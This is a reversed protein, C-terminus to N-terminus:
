ERTFVVNVSYDDPPTAGDAVITVDGQWEYTAPNDDSGQVKIVSSDPWGNFTFHGIMGTFITNVSLKGYSNNSIRINLTQTEAPSMTLTLEDGTGDVVWYDTLVAPDQTYDWWAMEITLPEDVSVVTTFGLFNYGAALVSGTTIVLVLVVMVPISFWKKHLFRKM